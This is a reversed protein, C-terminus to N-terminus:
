HAPLHPQLDQRKDEAKPRSALMHIMLSTGLFAVALLLAPLVYLLVQFRAELVYEPIRQVESLWLWVLGVIFGIGSVSLLTAGIVILVRRAM